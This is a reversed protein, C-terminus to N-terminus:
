RTADAPDTSDVVTPEPNVDPPLAVPELRDLRRVTEASDLGEGVLRPLGENPADLRDIAVVADIADVLAVPVCYGDASVARVHTTDPPAPGLLDRLRVGRWRGGFAGDSACTFRCSVAVTGHERRAPGIRVLLDIASHESDDDGSRTMDSRGM